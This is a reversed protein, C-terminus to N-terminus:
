SIGGSVVRLVSRRCRFDPPQRPLVGTSSTGVAKIRGLNTVDWCTGAFWQARDAAAAVLDLRHRGDDAPGAVPPDAPLLCLRRDPDQDFRPRGYLHQRNGASSAPAIHCIKAAGAPGLQPAQRTTKPPRPDPQLTPSAKSVGRDPSMPPGPAPSSR